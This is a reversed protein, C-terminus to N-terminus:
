NPDGCDALPLSVTVVTGENPVSDITLRGGHLDVIRSALTLGLGTGGYRRELSTGHVQSFPLLAREIQATTMGIGTDAVAISFSDECCQGDITISGAHTFKIANGLINMFVDVLRSRDGCIPRAVTLRNDLTVNGPDIQVSVLRVVQDVLEAPDVPSRDIEFKGAEIKAIDLISNIQTLLLKGSLNINEAYSRYAEPLPGKIELAMMESYGIVSNLPTRLEHSMNALFESKARNQAEAATLANRLQAELRKQAGIDRTLCFLLPEDHFTLPLASVSAPFTTGDKRRHVTEFEVREGADFISSILTDIEEAPLAVDWFSPHAGILEKETYGLVSCFLDSVEMVRHNADVICMGDSTNRLFVQAKELDREIRAADTLGSETTLRAM